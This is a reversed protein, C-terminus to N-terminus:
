SSAPNARRALEERVAQFSQRDFILQISRIQGGETTHWEVSLVAGAATDTVFDYVVCVDNGDVFTKRVDNRLLVPSLRRLAALYDEVTHSAGGPGQFELDPHLLASVREFQKQEFAELYALVLAKPSTEM